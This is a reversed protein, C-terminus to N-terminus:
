LTHQGQHGQQCYGGHGVQDDVQAEGLALDEHAVSAAHDDAIQQGPRKDAEALLGLAMEGGDVHQPAHGQGHEIGEGHHVAADALALRWEFGIAAMDM